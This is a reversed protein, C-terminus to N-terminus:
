TTSPAFANLSMQRLPQEGTVLLLRQPEMNYFLIIYANPPEKANTTKVAFLKLYRTFADVIVLIHMNGRKSRIFPGVHDIHLKMMPREPLKQITLLGPRKGGPLKTMLCEFCGNIHRRVYRRMGAFWVHRLIAAVTREVSWHGRQDHCKIVTAKRMSDPIVYLLKRENNITVEKKLRGNELVYNKVIGNERKNRDHEERSLIEIIEKLREDSRQMMLIRDEETLITYLGVRTEYIEEIIGSKSPTEVAARSLSDVHSMKEGPRYRIEYDYESLLYCWRAVQAQITKKTNLYVLAQCDSVITFHIGLLLHRLREVCWVIAMLELKASHYKSEIDNTKKSICHVLRM